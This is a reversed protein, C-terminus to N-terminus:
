CPSPVALAFKMLNLRFHSALSFPQHSGGGFVLRYKLRTYSLFSGQPPTKDRVKRKESREETDGQGREEESQREEEEESASSPSSAEQLKAELQKHLEERQKLLESMEGLFVFNVEAFEREACTPM